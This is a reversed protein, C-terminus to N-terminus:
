YHQFTCIAPVLHYVVEGGVGRMNRKVWLSSRDRQGTGKVDWTQEEQELHWWTRRWCTPTWIVPLPLLSNSCYGSPNHLRDLLNNCRHRSTSVLALYYTPPMSPMESCKVQVQLQSAGVNAFLCVKVLVEMLWQFILSRFVPSVILFTRQSRETVVLCGWFCFPDTSGLFWRQSWITSRDVMRPNASFNGLSRSDTEKSFSRGDPDTGQLLRGWSPLPLSAIGGWASNGTGWRKRLPSPLRVSHFATRRGTGEEALRPPDTCVSAGSWSCSLPPADGDGDDASSAPSSAAPRRTSRCWTRFSTKSAARVRPGRWSTACRSSATRKHAKCCSTQVHSWSLDACTPQKAELDHHLFITRINMCFKM